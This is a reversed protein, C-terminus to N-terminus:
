RQNDLAARVQEHEWKGHRTRPMNDPKHWATPFAAKCDGTVEVLYNFMVHWGRRGRFSEIGTMKQSRAQLGLGELVKKARDDPHEYPELDEGPLWWADEEKDYRVFLIEDGRKVVLNAILDIQPRKTESM